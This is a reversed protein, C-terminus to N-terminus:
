KKNVKNYHDVAIQKIKDFRHYLGSKSIKEGYQNELISLMEKLTAEPNDQRVKMLTLLKKDLSELPYNYVLYQIYKLQEKAATLAKQENAIECNIVRNISNKFDRVNRIDEYSFANDEAGLIRLIDVIKEADKIYLVLKNRRKAIKANFDYENMLGQAYTAIKPNTIAIEFHYKTTEPDNVSGRSMFMGALYERRLKDNSKILEYVTDLNEQEEQWIISYNKLASKKNEVIKLNKKHYNDVFYRAVTKQSTRFECTNDDIIDVAADKMGLLFIKIEEEFRQKNIIEEKCKTTFSM